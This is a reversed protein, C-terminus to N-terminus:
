RPRPLSREALYATPPILLRYPIKVLWNPLKPHREEHDVRGRLHEKGLRDPRDSTFDISTLHKISKYGYHQPAVLRLPGGHRAGLREGNLKTALIVDAAFADETMFHGRRSDAARAVVYPSAQQDLGVSEAVHRLPVGTWILDKVSWTTVCHFDFRYDDLGIAELDAETIVALPQRDVSFAVACAPPDPPPRFPNNTFRPMDHMLRQGPPLGTSRRPWYITM